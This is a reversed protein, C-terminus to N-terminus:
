NPKRFGRVAWAVSFGILLIVLAPILALAVTFFWEAEEVAPWRDFVLFAVGVVWIASLVAWARLLGRKWNVSM